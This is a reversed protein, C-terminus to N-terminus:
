YLVSVHPRIILHKYCDRSYVVFIRSAQHLTNSRGLAWIMMMRSAQDIQTEKSTMKYKNQDVLRRNDVAIINPHCIRSGKKDM